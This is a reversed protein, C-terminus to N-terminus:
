AMERAPVPGICAISGREHLGFALSATWRRKDGQCRRCFQEVLYEDVQLSIYENLLAFHLPHGEMESYEEYGMEDREENLLL